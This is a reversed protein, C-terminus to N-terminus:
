IKDKEALELIRKVNGRAKKIGLNVIAAFVFCLVTLIIGAIGIVFRINEGQIGWYAAVLFISSVSLLMRVCKELKKIEKAQLSAEVSLERSNM